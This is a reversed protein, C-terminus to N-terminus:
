LINVKGTPSAKGDLGDVAKQADEPNKFNVFGFRKSYGNDRRM